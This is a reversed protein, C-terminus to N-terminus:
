HKFKFMAGHFNQFVANLTSDRKTVKHLQSQRSPVPCNPGRSFISVFPMQTHFADPYIGSFVVQERRYHLTHRVKQGIQVTADDSACCLCIYIGKIWVPADGHGKWSRNLSLQIPAKGTMDFSGCRVQPTEQSTTKWPVQQEQQAFGFKIM